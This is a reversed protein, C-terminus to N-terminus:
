LGAGGVVASACIGFEATGLTFDPSSIQATHDSKLFTTQATQHFTPTHALSTSFWGASATARCRDRWRRTRIMGNGELTNGASVMSVIYMHKVENHHRRGM